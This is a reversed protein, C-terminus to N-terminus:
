FNQDDVNAYKELFSYILQLLLLFLNFINKTEM